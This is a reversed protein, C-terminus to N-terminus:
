PMPTTIMLYANILMSIGGILYHYSKLKSPLSHLLLLYLLPLGDALYRSGYTYWGTNFYMLLLMLTAGFTLWIGRLYRSSNRLSAFAFVFFPSTIFFSLGWFSYSLFPFVLQASGDTVTTFSSLFYWYFNMPIHAPTFIGIERLPESIGGIENTAYGNDFIDGFRVYNFYLLLMASITLPIVLFVFNRFVELKTRFNFAIFGLVFFLFFGATPRTAFISALSLGVFFYNRHKEWVYLAIVLLTTAVVQAFFWSKPQVALSFFFSGFIFLASLFVSDLKSYNKDRAMSYLGYTMVILLLVQAVSQVYSIGVLVLPILVISPFPGQPWYYKGDVEVLDHSIYAIDSRGEIFSEAQLSFQQWSSDYNQFFLYGWALTAILIAFIGFIRFYMIRFM